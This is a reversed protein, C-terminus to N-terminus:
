GATSCTTELMTLAMQSHKQVGIDYLLSQNFCELMMSTNSILYLLVADYSYM